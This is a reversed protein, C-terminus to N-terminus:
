VSVPAPRAGIRFLGVLTDLLAPDGQLAVAGDTLAQEPTLEGAILAKFAPGTHVVLDAGDLGGDGTILEGDDIRAHIVVDGFHFEYGVTVDRAADPQFTSRLAMIMSDTTVIEDEKPEALSRAGWAGLRMLVDELERGYDTLEYVVSAAPRPLVRRAIVGAQELEKLRTSLINTPIKPLGHRLDTFRKPGLVLDRVVLMAWREGVIDM